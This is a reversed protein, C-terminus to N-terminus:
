PEWSDLLWDFYRDSLKKDAIALIVEGQLWQSVRTREPNGYDNLRAQLWERVATHSEETDPEEDLRIALLDALLSSFSVTTRRGGVIVHYREM